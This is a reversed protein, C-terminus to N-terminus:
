TPYRDLTYFPSMCLPKPKNLKIFEIIVDAHCHKNLPCFCVLDKGELEDLFHPDHILQIKLWVRYAEIVEERESEDKMKFPNGFKSPRGVYVANPNSTWANDEFNKKRM